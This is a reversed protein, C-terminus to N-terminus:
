TSGANLRTDYGVGMRGQEEAEADWRQANNFLVPFFVGQPSSLRLSKVVVDMTGLSRDRKQLTVRGEARRTHPNKRPRCPPFLSINEFRVFLTALFFPVLLGTQRKGVICVVPDRCSYAFSSAGQFRTGM